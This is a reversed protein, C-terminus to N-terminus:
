RRKRPRVDRRAFRDHAASRSLGLSNAIERWSWRYSRALAVAEHELEDLKRRLGRIAALAVSPDVSEAFRLLKIAEESLGRLARHDPERRGDAHFRRTPLEWFRGDVARWAGNITEFEDDM